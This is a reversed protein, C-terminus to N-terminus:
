YSFEQRFSLLTPHQDHKQMLKQMEGLQTLERM